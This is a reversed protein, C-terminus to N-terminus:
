QKLDTKGKNEASEENEPKPEVVVYPKTNNIFQYANLLTVENEDPLPHAKAFKVLDATTFISVLLDIDSYNELKVQKMATIVEDSVMEPASVQYREEIYQRIIDTLKTYYQKEKGQQWLKESRLSDLSRLAIVHAPEKPKSVSFIPEHKRMKMYLWIGVGILVLALAIVLYLWIDAFTWPASYPAHIDKIAQTTDVPVTTVQLYLPNTRFTDSRDKANCVITLPRIQHYGSDFSTIVYDQRIHYNGGNVVTDTKLTEIWEVSSSVTDTFIPFVARVSKPQDIEIRLKVQEGIKITSSSDISAKVSITQANVWSASFLCLVAVWLQISLRKM